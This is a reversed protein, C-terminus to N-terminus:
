KWSVYGGNDFIQRAKAGYPSRFGRGGRGAIDLVSTAADIPQVVSLPVPREYTYMKGKGLRHLNTQMVDPTLMSFWTYVSDSPYHEPLTRLFLPGLVSGAGPNNPNGVIFLDSSATPPTFLCVNAIWTDGLHISVPISTQRISVIEELSLLLM